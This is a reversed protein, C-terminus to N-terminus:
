EKARPPNGAEGGLKIAHALAPGIALKIRMANRLEKHTILWLPTRLEPIAETLPLILVGDVHAWTHGRLQAVFHM